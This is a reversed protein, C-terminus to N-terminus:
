ASRQELESMVELWREELTEIERALETHRLTLRKGEAPPKTTYTAPDALEEELRKREGTLKELQGEIRRQENRLPTLRNRAEADLRRQEQRSGGTSTSDPAPRAKGSKGLWAAYDDLDGDFPVVAGNAVLLFSDCASRLLTRDHSVVVVAGAFEQLALLLVHRMELDLHNTPEDLLLLNPKRAVLIALALRAREGGSFQGTPEFVREGRFGFRGLHDRRQQETWLTVDSGGRRVLEGLATGSADLHELEIQAFFGTVVDPATELTGALPALQGALVRMLTSKGAGNRGLIGIRDGPNVSLSVNEIVRRTGYGAALHELTLLPRPLRAPTAFEWEFGSDPQVASIEGLRALAKIRSQVQRAKSAQARFRVIFSEVRATERQQRAILARTREGEAAHQIEFSSYNGAYASLRGGEILLIRGVVGDLFERDHSVLLLTGPYSRLWQELWLVADLDLHNTPEDLLLVDSRRMLARALNARMKLGGSFQRVPREIEGPAFGLGAALEAARSRAAYGALREYEAHLAGIRTGDAGHEAQALQAEVARLELDGDLIYEVLPADSEPLEQAVAALALNPPASYEGADPVLEGRILALLTSKGSGNRGVIGIKEGRFIGVTAADILVQPGRRLRVNSLTLM